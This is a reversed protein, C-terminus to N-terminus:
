IRYIFGPSKQPLDFAITERDKAYLKIHKALSKPKPDYAGPDPSTNKPKLRVFTDPKRYSFTRIDAIVRKENVNYTGPGPFDINL